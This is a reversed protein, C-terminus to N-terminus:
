GLAGGMNSAFTNLHEPRAHESWLLRELSDEGRRLLRKDIDYASSTYRTFYMRSPAAARSPVCARISTHECTPLAAPRSTMCISYMLTSGTFVGGNLTLLLTCLLHLLIGPVDIYWPQSGLRRQLKWWARRKECPHLDRM